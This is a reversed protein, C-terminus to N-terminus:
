DMIAAGAIAIIGGIIAVFWGNGLRWVTDWTWIFWVQANGFFINGNTGFLNDVGELIDLMDTQITLGYCWIFVGALIGISCLLAFTKEEKIATYMLLAACAIIILSAVIFITGNELFETEKDWSYNMYGFANIYGSLTTGVTPDGVCQWFSLEPVLLSLLVIALAMIGGIIALVKGTDSKAM